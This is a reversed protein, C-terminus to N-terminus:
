YIKRKSFGKGLVNFTSGTILFANTDTNYVIEEIRKLQFNNVVTLIIKKERGTYAGKGHLFTSGRQLKNMIEQAIVDSKESIIIVMKRQNFVSLFYDAVQSLIFTLSLSYLVAETDLFRFSFTFLVLNFLFIIKGIGMNFKQNLIIAIIDTGGLSGMSHLYIGVGAGMLTGGAVASLLKDQIPIQITIVDIAITLVLTGFLSYLFFRRSLLIWGVIFIPVNLVLYWLGPSLGGFIYYILLSLGSFGGSIFGNPIAIGKLGLALIFAGIILLCLNWFVDYIKRYKKLGM